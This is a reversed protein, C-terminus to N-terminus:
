VQSDHELVVRIVIGGGTPLCAVLGVLLGRLAVASVEVGRLGVDVATVVRVVTFELLLCLAFARFFPPRSAISAFLFAFSARFEPKSKENESKKFFGHIKKRLPECSM